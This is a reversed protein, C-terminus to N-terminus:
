KGGFLELHDSELGSGLKLHKLRGIFYTKANEILISRSSLTNNQM